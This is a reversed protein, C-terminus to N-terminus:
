PLLIWDLGSYMESGHWSEKSGWSIRPYGWHNKARAKPTDSLGDQLKQM